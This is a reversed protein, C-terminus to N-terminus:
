SGTWGLCSNGFVPYGTRCGLKDRLKVLILVTTLIGSLEGSFDSLGEVTRLPAKM